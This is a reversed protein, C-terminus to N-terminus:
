KNEIPLTIKSVPNSSKTSYDSNASNEDLKLKLSQLAYGPPRFVLINACAVCSGALAISVSTWLSDATLFPLDKIRILIPWIGGFSTLIIICARLIIAPWKKLGKANLYWKIARVADRDVIEVVKELSAAPESDWNSIIRESPEINGRGM